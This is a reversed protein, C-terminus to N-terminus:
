DGILKQDFRALIMNKVEEDLLDFVPTERITVNHLIWRKDPHQVGHAIMRIKGVEFAIRRTNPQLHSNMLDAHRVWQEIMGDFEYITKM